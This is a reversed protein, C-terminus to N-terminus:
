QAAEQLTGVYVSGRDDDFAVRHGDASLSPRREILRDTYTLQEVRDDAVRYWYLDSAVVAHGDDETVEFILKDSTPSWSPHTGPGVYTVQNRSRSYVYLGTTLGQFAVKDQDPSVVTAFFRDGTGVSRLQGGWSWAYVRDDRSFAVPSPLAITRLGGSADIRVLGIGGSKKARYQIDGGPTWQAMDTADPLSSLRLPRAGGITALYVGTLQPGHLLLRAGKPSFRAGEFGGSAIAQVDEVRDSWAPQSGLLLLASVLFSSAVRM